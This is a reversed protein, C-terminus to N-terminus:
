VGREGFHNSMAELYELLTKENDSFDNICRVEGHKSVACATDTYFGAEGNDLERNRFFMWCNQAELFRESVIVSAQAMYPIMEVFCREAMERAVDESILDKRVSM